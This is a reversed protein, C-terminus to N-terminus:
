PRRPGNSHVNLTTYQLLDTTTILGALQEQKGNHFISYMGEMLVAFGDMQLAKSVVGLTTDSKVRVFKTLLASGIPCDPKIRNLMFKSLLENLSAIGLLKGTKDSVPIQNIGLKRLLNLTKQCPTSPLITIPPDLTLKSVKDEWWWHNLTNPCPQLNRVEMWADSVFKSLYNRISDPLIVVCRQGAKLKAAVKMAAAVNAGASGGCLLGEERILRKAMPMCDKDSIKVWEDIVNHDLTTPIFDYGIGEVEWFKGPTKNLSEPRAMISGEPDVGIIKCSPNIERMRRGIGTLTGGTGSGGVVMDVKGDCQDYIEAATTDYHALPNSCNSYQDLIVSNPTQKQIRQSVAILGDPSYSGETTPTRIVTAGLATLTDVKEQSMKEPMVILCKYGKIACVMALGIGTNGSTAEIITDGPKIRGAQEADDVMRFAIRDKVSGGPNFYECKVLVECKIGYSQPIKNLRILPTRGITDLATANIKKPPGLPKKTHPSSSPDSEKHWTCKSTWSPLVFSDM